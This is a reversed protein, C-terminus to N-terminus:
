RVRTFTTTFTRPVDTNKIKYEIDIRVENNDMSNVNVSLLTVRPEFKTITDRIAREVVLLTTPHDNEFLLNHIQCGIEPHFPREFHNTLILNRLAGRVANDDIKQAVDKTRPNIGFAGDLDAFTRTITNAM